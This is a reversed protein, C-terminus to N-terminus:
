AAKIGYLSFRSGTVFNPGLGFLTISTVAATNYRAGSSLSVWNYNTAQGMFSRVTKNKTTEFPDVLDVVGGAFASGTGTGGVMDGLVIVTQSSASDSTVSSGSGNLRHFSYNSGTDGNLRMYLVSGALGSRDDRATLRLQLHQYTSGYATNLNSFTVSPEASSLVQTQLLDFSGASAGSAALIGLPILM